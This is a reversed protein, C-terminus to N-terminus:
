LSSMVFPTSPEANTVLARDFCGPEASIRLAASKIADDLGLYRCTPCAKLKDLGGLGWCVRLLLLMVGLFRSQETKAIQKIDGSSFAAADALTTLAPYLISVGKENRWSLHDCEKHMTNAGAIRLGYPRM